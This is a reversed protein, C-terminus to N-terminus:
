DVLLRYGVGRVNLIHQPQQPDAELAQRLGHIHWKALERAESTNVQYNQAEAVLSQYSIVDPAHRALVVLYDFTSPALEVPREALTARRAQLDLVLRGRSLYRDQATSASSGAAAGEELGQELAKLEAQLGDIQSQIEVRRRHIVQERVLAQTRTVLLEPNVPKLIYDTAGLRIADLASQLTGHATLLIVPIKIDTQRIQKLVDLGSMGPLRIDLFVLDFANGSLRRLAEEGDAATTVEFGNRQLIRTLTQRLSAEDDILLINGGLSKM